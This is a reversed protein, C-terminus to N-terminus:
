KSFHKAIVVCVFDVSTDKTHLDSHWFGSSGGSSTATPSSARPLVALLLLVVVRPFNSEGVVGCAVVGALSLSQTSCRDLCQARLHGRNVELGPPECLTTELLTTKASTGRYLFNMSFIKGAASGQCFFFRHNKNEQVEFVPVLTCSQGKTQKREVFPLISQDRLSQMTQPAMCNEHLAGTPSSNSLRGPRVSALCRCVACQKIVEACNVTKRTIKALFPGSALVFKYRDQPPNTM